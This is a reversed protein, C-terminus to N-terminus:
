FNFGFHLGPEGVFFRSWKDDLQKFDEPMETHYPRHTIGLSPEIFFRDKFLKFHYGVRYTNFIQFGNDIKNGDNDVFTQWANMVHIGTYLGKWWFRQYALAFGYERIYGPFQEETAEFSKGYPIGLPWAYKWTKLELSIVDKGTIRYGLNLQIFDPRNKSDLNGLMFLTSGVFCNKYITDEKAYQAKLQFSNALFLAIALTVIKNKM